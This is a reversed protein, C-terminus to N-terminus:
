GDNTIRKQYRVGNTEELGMKIRQQRRTQSPQLPLFPLFVYIIPQIEVKNRNPKRVAVRHRRINEQDIQSSDNEGFWANFYM